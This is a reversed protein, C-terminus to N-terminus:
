QNCDIVYQVHVYMLIKMYQQKSLTEGFVFHTFITLDFRLTSLM